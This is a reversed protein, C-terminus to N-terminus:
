MEMKNSLNGQLHMDTYIIVNSATASPFFAFTKHPDAQFNLKCDFSERLSDQRCLVSMHSCINETILM